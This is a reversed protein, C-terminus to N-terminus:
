VQRRVSDQMSTTIQGRTAIRRQPNLKVTLASLFEPRWAPRRGLSIRIVIADVVVLQVSSPSGLQAPIVRPGQTAGTTAVATSAVETGTQQLSTLLSGRWVRRVIPIAFSRLAVVPIDRSM